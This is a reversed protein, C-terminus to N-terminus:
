ERSPDADIRRFGNNAEKKEFIRHSRDLDAAQRDSRLKHFCSRYGNSAGKKNGSRPKRIAVEPKHWSRRSFVNATRHEGVAARIGVLTLKTAGEALHIM